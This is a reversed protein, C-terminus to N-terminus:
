VEKLITRTSESRRENPGSILDDETEFLFRSFPEGDDEEEDHTRGWQLSEQLQKKRSRPSMDDNSQLPEHSIQRVEETREPM